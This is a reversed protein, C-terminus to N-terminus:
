PNAERSVTVTLKGGLGPFTQSGGEEPFSVQTLGLSSPNVTHSASASGAIPCTASITTTADSYKFKLTVKRTVPDVTADIHTPASVVSFSAVCPSVNVMQQFDFPGDGAYTKDPKRGLRTEAMIGFVTGLPFEFIYQLTVKYVCAKVEFQLKGEAIKPQYVPTGSAPLVTKQYANYVITEQGTKQADYYLIGAPNHEQIELYKPSIPNLLSDVEVGAHLQRRVTGVVQVPQVLLKYQDYQCFGPPDRFTDSSFKLYLAGGPVFDQARSQIGGSLTLALAAVGAFLLGARRGLRLLRLEM